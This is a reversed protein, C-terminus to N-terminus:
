EDDKDKGYLTQRRSKLKSGIEKVVSGAIMPATGLAMLTKSIPGIQRPSNAARKTTAAAAERASQAETADEADAM